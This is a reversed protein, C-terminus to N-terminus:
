QENIKDNASQYWIRPVSGGNYVLGRLRVFTQTAAIEIATAFPPLLPPNPIIQLSSSNALRM